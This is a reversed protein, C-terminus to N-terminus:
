GVRREESRVATETTYHATMLVVDTAPAFEMIRNLLDLGTMEPMVLDTLVLQPRVQRVLELASSPRSATHIAVGERSLATDLLELSGPNDDVIVISLDM